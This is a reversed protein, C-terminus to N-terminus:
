CLSKEKLMHYQLSYSSFSDFKREADKILNLKKYSEANNEDSLVNCKYEALM